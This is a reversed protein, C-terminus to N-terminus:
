PRGMFRKGQLNNRIVFSLYILNGSGDQLSYPGTVFTTKVNFQSFFLQPWRSSTRDQYGISYVDDYLNRFWNGVLVMVASIDCRCFVKNHFAKLLIVRLLVHPCTRKCKTFILLAILVFQTPQMNYYYPILEGWCTKLSGTQKKLLCTLM